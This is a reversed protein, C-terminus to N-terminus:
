YFKKGFSVRLGANIGFNSQDPGNEYSINSYLSFTENISANFGGGINFNGGSMDSEHEVGVYEVTTKGLFEHRYGLEIYPHISAGEKDLEKLYGLVFSVTASLSNDSNFYVTSNLNTDAENDSTVIYAAELKPELILIGSNSVYLDMEKGVEISIATQQVEPEYTIASGDAAYSTMDLKSMFSRATIDAFMGGRSLWLVYLGFTPATGSGHGDKAGNDQEIKIDDIQQYGGMFGLYFRDLSEKYVRMDYGAEFGVVNFDTPLDHSLSMSKGYGRAWVGQYRDESTSRIDGLRLSLENMGAKASYFLIHPITEMARFVSTLRKSSRLYFSDPDTMSTNGQHLYYEYAGSDVKGGLLAFNDADALAGTLVEVIKIGENTETGENWTNKIDLLTTGIAIGSMLIKDSESDDDGALKANLVFVGNDSELNEVTLTNYIGATASRLDVTSNQVALDYVNSNNQIEWKSGNTLVMVGDAIDAKGRIHSASTGFVAIGNTGEELLVGNDQMLYTSGYLTVGGFAQDFVFGKQGSTNITSSTIEIRGSRNAYAFVSEDSNIVSNIIKIESENDALIGEIANGSINVNM